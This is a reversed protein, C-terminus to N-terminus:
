DGIQVTYSVTGTPQVPASVTTPQPSPQVPAQAPPQAPTPPQAQAPQAAATPQDQAVAGAPLRLVEGVFIRTPDTINNAASFAEVTTGYRLAIRFLNEGPQVTHTPGDARVQVVTTILLVLVSVVILRRWRAMFIM